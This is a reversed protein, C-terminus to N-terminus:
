LLYNNCYVIPLKIYALGISTVTVVVWFIGMVFVFLVIKRAIPDKIHSLKIGKREWIRMLSEKVNELESPNIPSSHTSNEENHFSSNKILGQILKTPEILRRDLFFYWSDNPPPNAAEFLVIKSNWFQVWGSSHVLIYTMGFSVVSGISAAITVLIWTMVPSMKDAISLLTIVGSVLVALFVLYLNFRNYFMNLEVKHKEVFLQLYQIRDSKNGDPEKSKDFPM